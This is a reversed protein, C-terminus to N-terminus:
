LHVQTAPIVNKWRYGTRIDTITQPSVGYLSALIKRHLDSQKIELVSEETLKTTGNRNRGKAIMDRTNDKLTGLFLHDPRVCKPNDCRHLVCMGEPIVGNHLVWSFRHAAWKKYNICLEGYGWGHITGAWEWCGESKQVKDWFRGPLKKWMSPVGDRRILRESLPIQYATRM